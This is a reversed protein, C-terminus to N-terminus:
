RNSRSQDQLRYLRQLLPSLLLQAPSLEQFIIMTRPTFLIDKDDNSLSSLKYLSHSVTGVTMHYKVTGCFGDDLITWVVGFEM